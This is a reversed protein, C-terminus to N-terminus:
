KKRMLESQRYQEALPIDVFDVTQDFNQKVVAKIEDLSVRFFERRTNVMNLKRDEFAKHLEAELAPANDSFILAHVDFDFPVSADGLEDIRDMPELRRTMGIKYVGEGFAGVNSIIYVYGAKQNAERYDIQQISKDLDLLQNELEKKKEELAAVEDASANSLQQIVKKLANAYHKQEKEVKKRAEAIEKELKAREREEARLQKLAEKEKQKEVQYEYALYLEKIKLDRYIGTIAIGCVAGLKSIASYSAEIRKVANEVNNFKVHDVVDDCECNFARILLKQMDHIMKAGKQRDGNVTWDDRGTAAQGAKVCEKQQTRVKSLEEKYESSNAFAFHPKYLGFSQMLVEENTEVLQMKAQAIQKNLLSLEQRAKETQQDLAIQTSTLQQQLRSVETRQDTLQRQLRISDQMEPTLMAELQMIRAKLQANEKGKFMDGLAM